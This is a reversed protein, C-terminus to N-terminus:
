GPAAVRGRVRRGSVDEQQDLHRCLGPSRDRPGLQFQIAPLSEPTRSQPGSSPHRAQRGFDVRRCTHTSSSPRARPRAPHPLDARTSSVPLKATRTAPAPRREKALMPLVAWTDCRQRLCDTHPVTDSVALLSRGLMTENSHQTCRHRKCPSQRTGERQFAVRARRGHRRV